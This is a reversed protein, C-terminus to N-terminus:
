RPGLLVGDDDDGDHSPDDGEQTGGPVLKSPGLMVGYLERSGGGGGRDGGGGGSGRGSGGGGKSSRGPVGYDGALAGGNGGAGGRDIKGQNGPVQGGGAERGAM